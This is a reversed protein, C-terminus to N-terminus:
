NIITDPISNLGGYSELKDTLFRVKILSQDHKERYHVLQEMVKALDKNSNSNNNNSNSANSNATPIQAHQNNNM